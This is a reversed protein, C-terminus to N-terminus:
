VRRARTKPRAHRGKGNRPALAHTSAIGADVLSQPTSQLPHSHLAARSRRRLRIARAAGWTLALLLALAVAAPLVPVLHLSTQAHTTGAASRITVTAQGWFVTPPHTWRGRLIAQQGPLLTDITSMKVTVPSGPRGAIRLLGSPQLRTNGTNTVTLAFTRASGDVASTLAGLSLSSRATGAVHLYIRAAVREVFNLQVATQHGLQTTQGARPQSQVAIGGSYDGPPTGVPVTLAFTVHRQGGAPLTLTTLPLQTWAGVETRAQQATNLSFGGQPTTLGDAPYITIQQVTTSHNSVVATRRTTGGPLLEVHFFDPEDAPAIGLTAGNAATAPSAAILLMGILSAALLVLRATTRTHPSRM